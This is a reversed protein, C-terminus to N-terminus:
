VGVAEITKNRTSLAETEILFELLGLFLLEKIKLDLKHLLKERQDPAVSKHTRDTLLKILAAITIPNRFSVMIFISLDDLPRHGIHHYGFGFDYVTALYYTSTKGPYSFHMVPIRENVILITDPSLRLNRNLRAHGEQQRQRLEESQSLLNRFLAHKEYEFRIIASLENKGAHRYRTELSRWNKMEVTVEPDTQRVMLNSETFIDNDPFTFATTKNWTKEILRVVKQFTKPFRRKLQFEVQKCYYIDKKNTGILHTMGFSEDMCNALAGYGGDQKVPILEAVPQQCYEAYHRFFSEEILTNLYGYHTMGPIPNSLYQNFFLAVEDVYAKFFANNVGGTIGMNVAKYRGTQGNFFHPLPIGAKSLLQVAIEYCPFGSQDNQVIVPKEHLHAPLGNWLFADGDVHLFPVDPHAYSSIKRLVWWEKSYLDGLGEQTLHVECYPLELLDALIHRGTKDTHLVLAPFHQRLLSASLAWGMFHFRADLWGGQIQDVPLGPSTWFTQVANM